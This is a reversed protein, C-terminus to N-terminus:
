VSEIGHELDGNHNNALDLTILNNLISDKM